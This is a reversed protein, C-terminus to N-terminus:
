ARAAPPPRFLADGDRSRPLYSRGGARLRGAAVPGPVRFPPIPTFNEDIDLNVLLGDTGDDDCDICTCDDSPELQGPPEVPAALDVAAVAVLAALVVLPLRSRPTV